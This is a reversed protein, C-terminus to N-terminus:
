EHKLPRTSVTAGVLDAADLENLRDFAYQVWGAALKVM